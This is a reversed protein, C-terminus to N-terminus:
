CKDHSDSSNMRTKFSCFFSGTKRGHKERRLPQLKFLHSWETSRTFIFSLTEPRINNIKKINPKGSCALFASLVLPFFIFPPFFFPFFHFCIYSGPTSKWFLQLPKLMCALFRLSTEDRYIICMQSFLLESSSKELEQFHTSRRTNGEKNIEKRSVNVTFQM